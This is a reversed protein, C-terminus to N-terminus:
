PQSEQHPARNAHSPVPLPPQDGAAPSLTQMAVVRALVIRLAEAADGGFSQEFQTQAQAWFPRATTVLARGAKTLAVIRKRGDTPGVAIKVLGRSELPRLLHGLTSRDMALGRALEQLVHPGSRELRVLVAYQNVGLGVPM